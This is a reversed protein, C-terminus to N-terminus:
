LHNKSLKNVKIEDTPIIFHGAKKNLDAFSKINTFFNFKPVIKNFKESIEEDSISLHM